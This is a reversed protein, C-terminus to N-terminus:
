KSVGTYSDDKQADFCTYSVDGLRHRPPQHPTEADRSTSMQWSDHSSRLYCPRDVSVCNARRSTTMGRRRCVLRYEAEQPPQLRSVARMQQQGGPQQPYPDFPPRAQQLRATCFDVSIAQRRPGCCCVCWPVSLCVSLRVSVTDNFLGPRMNHSCHRYVTKRMQGSLDNYLAHRLSASRTVTAM